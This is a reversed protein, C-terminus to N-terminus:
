SSTATKLPVVCRYAAILPEVYLSWLGIHNPGDEPLLGVRFTEKTQSPVILTGNLRDWIALASGLNCGLHRSEMSHHLQHHAPSIIWKNLTKGYTLWVSSHRLNDFFNLVALVIHTGLFFYVSIGAGIVHNFIWLTLGTMVICVTNMLLPEIPHVRYATFPTMVVASHHVKHLEWLAPIHHLLLHGMFRGLDYMVFIALTFLVRLYWINPDAILSARATAVSNGLLMNLFSLVVGENFAILGFLPPLVIFNLFYLKYDQRASPHWWVEKKFFSSKDILFVLALTSLTYPWYFYSDSQTIATLAKASNFLLQSLISTFIEM